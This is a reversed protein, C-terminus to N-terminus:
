GRRAGRVALEAAGRLLHRAGEPTRPYKGMYTYVVIHWDTDRPLLEAALSRLVAIAEEDQRPHTGQAFSLSVSRLGHQHFFLGELLTIAILLSPPCMQGMMCGGFSELHPEIGRDDRLRAFQECCRAWADTAVALPVRSYPLCYSVPGGETADLGAAVLTTFIDDPLASGHRIQVPFGPGRIGELVERTTEVGHTVIPYGNLGTDEALAREVSAYDKVRTYSDLTLTGVTAARARRTAALGRRMQEPGSFGMRPQVLLGASRRVESLGVFSGRAASM